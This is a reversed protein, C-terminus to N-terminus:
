IGTLIFAKVAIMAMPDRRLTVIAEGRWSTL